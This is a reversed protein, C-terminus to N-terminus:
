LTDDDSLGHWMERRAQKIDEFSIDNHLDALIGRPSRRNPVDGSPRTEQQGLLQVAAAIVEGETHFRGASLQKRVIQEVQPPLSVNMM